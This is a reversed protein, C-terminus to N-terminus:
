AIQTHVNPRRLHAQLYSKVRFNKPCIHCQYVVTGESHIAINHENLADANLFRVSCANCRLEADVRHVVLMHKRLYSGLAFTKQCISCQYQKDAQHTLMHRNLGSQQKFTKQCVDCHHARQESHTLLHKELHSSRVFNVKCIHCQFPNQGYHLMMHDNLLEDNVFDMQCHHCHFQKSEVDNKHAQIHAEFETQEFFEKECFTCALPPIDGAHLRRVHATLNRKEMFYKQCFECQFATSGEHLASVHSKLRDQDPFQDGCLSCKFLRMHVRKLHQRLNIESTFSRECFECPFTTTNNHNLEIHNRLEEDGLFEVQCITCLYVSDNEVTENNVEVNGIVYEIVPLVEPNINNTQLITTANQDQEAKLESKPVVEMKIHSMCVAPSLTTSLIEEQVYEGPSVWFVPLGLVEDVEQQNGNVVVEM